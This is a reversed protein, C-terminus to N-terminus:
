MFRESVEVRVYVKKGSVCLEEEKIGTKNTDIGRVDVPM